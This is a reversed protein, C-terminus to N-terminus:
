TLFPRVQPDGFGLLLDSILLRRRLSGGGPLRYDTNARELDDQGGPVGARRGGGAREFLRARPRAPASRSMSAATSRSTGGYVLPTGEQYGSSLARTWVLRLDNVNERTIQDLPSYGWCGAIAPQGPSPDPCRPELDPTNAAYVRAPSGTEVGCGRAVHGVHHPPALGM